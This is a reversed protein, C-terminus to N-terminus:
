LSKANVEPLNPSDPVAIGSLVGHFCAATPVVILGDFNKASSSPLAFM